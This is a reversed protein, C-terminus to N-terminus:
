GLRSRCLNGLFGDASASPTTVTAVAAKRSAAWGLLRRREQRSQKGAVGTGPQVQISGAMPMTPASMFAL